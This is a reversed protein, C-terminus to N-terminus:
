DWLWKPCPGMAAPFPLSPTLRGSSSRMPGGYASGLGTPLAVDIYMNADEPSTGPLLGITLGQAEKAGQAAAAMVGGLGGCLLVAGERALILGTERLTSVTEDCSGAGCVAIIPRRNM